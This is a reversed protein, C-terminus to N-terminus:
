RLPATLYQGFTSPFAYALVLGVVLFAAMGWRIATLVVDRDRGPM